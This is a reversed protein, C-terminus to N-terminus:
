KNAIDQNHFDNVLPLKLTVCVGAKRLNSITIEGDARKLIQYALSLSLGTGKGPPKTSFFPEFIRCLHHEPIGPGEDILEVICYDHDTYCHIKLTSDIGAAELANLIISNFVQLLDAQKLKVCANECTFETYVSGSFGLANLCVELSEQIVAVPNCFSIEDPQQSLTMLSQIIQQIKRLGSLIDQRINPFDDILDKLFQKELPEIPQGEALRFALKMLQETDDSVYNINSKVTALPTNIEHAIGAALLGISALKEAQFLQTQTSQLKEILQQQQAHANLLALERDADRLAYRIRQVLLRLNIPKTIFDSAGVDFAHNISEHDDRGTLLIIPINKGQTTKRLAICCEFGDMVPMNVDMLILDVHNEEFALLAQYGNDALIVQYGANTLGQKLILRTTASDEVVLIKNNKENKTTM